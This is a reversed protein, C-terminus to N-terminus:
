ELIQTYLVTYFLKAEFYPTRSIIILLMVIGNRFNLKTPQTTVSASLKRNSIDDYNM